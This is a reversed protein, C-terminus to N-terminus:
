NMMMESVAMMEDDLKDSDVGGPNDTNPELEGSHEDLM